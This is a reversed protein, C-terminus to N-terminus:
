DAVAYGSLHGTLFTITNSPRLDVGGMNELLRKSSEDIHWVTVPRMPALGSACRSYDITVLVPRQFVYREADGARVSIEVIPSQPVTLTFTTPTLVASEPIVVKTNGLQLTGGLLGIVASVTQPTAAPECRLLTPGALGQLPLKSGISPPSYVQEACAAAALVAFATATIRRFLAPRMPSMRPVSWM